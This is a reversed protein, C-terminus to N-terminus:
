YIVLLFYIFCNLLFRSISERLWLCLPELTLQVHEGEWISSGRMVVLSGVREQRKRAGLPGELRQGQAPLTSMSSGVYLGSLVWGDSHTACATQSSLRPSATLPTTTSKWLKKLPNLKWSTRSPSLCSFLSFYSLFLTLPLLFSLPLSLYITIYISLPLSLPPPKRHQRWWLPPM